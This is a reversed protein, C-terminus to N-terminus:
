PLEKKKALPGHLFKLIDSFMTEVEPVPLDPYNRKRARELESSFNRDTFIATLYSFDLDSNRRSYCRAIASQLLALDLEKQVLTWLDIFDKLRTNGTGFRSV